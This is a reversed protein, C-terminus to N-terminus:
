AFPFKKWFLKDLNYKCIFRSKRFPRLEEDYNSYYAPMSFVFISHRNIIPRKSCSFFCVSTKTSGSPLGARTANLNCFISELNIKLTESYEWLQSHFTWDLEDPCRCFCSFDLIHYRACIDSIKFLECSAVQM